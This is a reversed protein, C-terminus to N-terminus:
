RAVELEIRTRCDACDISSEPVSRGGPELYGRYFAIERCLAEENRYYHAFRDGPRLLGWGESIAHTQLTM